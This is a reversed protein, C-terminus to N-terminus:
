VKDEFSQLTKKKKGSFQWNELFNLSLNAWIVSLETQPHQLLGRTPTREDYETSQNGFLESQRAKKKRFEESSCDSSCDEKQSETQYVHNYSHTEHPGLLARGDFDGHFGLGSRM